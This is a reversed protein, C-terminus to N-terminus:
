EALCQSYNGFNLGKGRLFVCMWYVCKGKPRPRNVKARTRFRIVQAYISACLCSILLLSRWIHHMAIRNPAHEGSFSSLVSIYRSQATTQYYRQWASNLDIYGADFPATLTLRSSSLFLHDFDVAFREVSQTPLVKPCYM